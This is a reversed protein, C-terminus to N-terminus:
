HTSNNSDFTSERQASDQCTSSRSQFKYGHSVMHVLKVGTINFKITNQRSHLSAYVSRQIFTVFAM